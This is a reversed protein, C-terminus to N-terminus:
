LSWIKNTVAHITNIDLGTKNNHFLHIGNINKAYEINKIDDDFYLINEPANLLNYKIMLGLIMLNKGSSVYKTVLEFNNYLLPAYNEPTIINSPSIIIRQKNITYNIIKKIDNCKGYSAIAIIINQNYYENLLKVIDDLGNFIDEYNIMGRNEIFIGENGIHYKQKRTLNYIHKNTLTQDFDFIILYPKDNNCRSM